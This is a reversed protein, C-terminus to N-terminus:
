RRMLLAGILAGASMSLVCAALPQNRITRRAGEVNEAAWEEVEDSLKDVMQEADTLAKNLRAQVARQARASADSAYAQADSLAGNVVGQFRGAAGNAQDVVAEGAGAVLGQMDGKIAGIDQRLAAIRQEVHDAGNGNGNGNSKRRVAM